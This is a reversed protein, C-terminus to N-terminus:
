VANAPSVPWVKAATSRGPVPAPKAKSDWARAPTMNPRPGHVVIPMRDPLAHDCMLVNRIVRPRVPKSDSVWVKSATNM